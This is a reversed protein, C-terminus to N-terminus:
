NGRAFSVCSYSGRGAGILQLAAATRLLKAYVAQEAPESSTRLDRLCKLQAMASPISFESLVAQNDPSIAFSHPRRIAVTPFPHMQVASAASASQTIVLQEGANLALVQGGCTVTIDGHAGDHLNLICISDGNDAICAVAGRAIRVHASGAQATVDETQPALLINTATLQEDSLALVRQVFAVPTLHGSEPLDVIRRKNKKNKPSTISGDNGDISDDSDSDTVKVTGPKGNPGHGGHNGQVAPQFGTGPLGGNGGVQFFQAAATPAIAPTLPATIIVTGGSGGGGGIGGNGGNGGKGVTIANGGHGGNQGLGSTGGDSSVTGSAAITGFTTTVLIKGGKGGTGANGGAGGTGGGIGGNGGTGGVGNPVTQTNGGNADLTRVSINAHNTTVTITGGSGGNGANGSKGGTGGLASTSDGGRGGTCNLNGADGGNALLDQSTTVTTGADNATTITITGGNGGNGSSGAAGGIGGNKTGGQGANGGGSFVPIVPVVDVNLTGGLGGQSIFSNAPATTVLVGGFTAKINITGANGGNGASGSAGGNGGTTGGSGGAGGFLLGGGGNGGSTNFVGLQAYSLAVMTITGGKGGNGGTGSAGGNGGAKGSNNGVGGQPNSGPTVSIPAFSGGGGLATISGDNIFGNPASLSVTGGPGGAAGFAGHGGNGGNGTIGLGGSGGAGNTNGSFGGTADIGFASTSESIDSQKATVTITGGAGGAGCNGANGGNGGSGSTLADGGISASPFSGSGDGGGAFLGLIAIPAFPGSTTITISGGRGGSGAAGIGGGNGGGKTGNSGASDIANNGGPGGVVEVVGSLEIDALSTSLTISGANGGAGGGGGAGGNGGRGNTSTMASGGPSGDSGGGGLATFLQEMEMFNLASLKISGANGGAGGTGGAGGNGSNGNNGTGGNGGVGTFGGIGGNAEFVGTLTAGGSISSKPAAFVISGANGGKGGNSGHGASGGIAGNGGNGGNGAIDGAIGGDAKTNLTETAVLFIVQGPDIANLTIKGGPGGPGTKGANGGAGGKGTGGNGGNGANDIQGGQGGSASLTLTDGNAENEMQTGGCNITITGGAGGSAGDKNSGGAGGITGGGGGNGGNNSTGAFPAGNAAIDGQIQMTTGSLKVTGGAGGVGGIAGAGGAGGAALGTTTGGAGGGGGNGGDNGTASIIPTQIFTAASITITGAKGAAGGVGGAGGNGGAKTTSGFGDKGSGGNGGSGSGVGVFCGFTNAPKIVGPLEITQASITVTGGAGGVGGPGGAGGNPKLASSASGDGGTGADGGFAEIQVPSTSSSNIDLAATISITGGAGGKGGATGPLGAGTPTTGNVGDNGAAQLVGALNISNTSNLQITGGKGSPATANVVIGSSDQLFIISGFESVLGGPNTIATSANQEIFGEGGPLLKTAPLLAGSIKGHSDVTLSGVAQTGSVILKPTGMTGNMNINGLFIKQPAIITIDGAKGNAANSSVTTGTLDIQGGTPGAGYAVLLIKGANDVFSTQTASSNITGTCAGCEFISGGNGPGVVTVKDGPLISNTPPNADQPGTGKLNAGAVIEINFGDGSNSTIVSQGNLNIDGASLLAIGEHFDLLGSLVMLNSQTWFTPDGTINMTGLNLTGVNNGAHANGATVNLIGTLRNVDLEVDGCGANINFQNSLWDGGNVWLTNGKTMSATNIDINGNLAQILGGNNNIWVNGASSGTIGVNGSASSMTGSNIIAPASLLLNGAAAIVGANFLRHTATLSLSLDSLPSSFGAIGGTPLVSTILGGSNNVLDRASIGAVNATPSTSLAYITGSNILNGALSLNTSGAFNRVLTVGHPVTLSSLLQGASLVMRGGVANGNIGLVLSQGGGALVQQLAV